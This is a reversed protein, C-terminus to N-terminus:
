SLRSRCMWEAHGQIGRAVSKNGSPSLTWGGVKAPREQRRPRLVAQLGPVGVGDRLGVLHRQVGSGAAVRQGALGGPGGRRRRQPHRQADRLRRLRQALQLQPPGDGRRGLRLPRPGACRPLLHALQPRAVRRRRGPNGTAYTAFIPALIPVVIEAWRKAGPWGPRSRAATQTPSVPLAWSM